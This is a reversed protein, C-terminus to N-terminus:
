TTVFEPFTGKDPIVKDSLASPAITQGCVESSAPSDMSHVAVCMVVAASTFAPCMVLAAVTSPAAGSPLPTSPDSVAVTVKMGAGPILTALDASGSM